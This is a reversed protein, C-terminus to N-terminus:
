IMVKWEKYLQLIIRNKKNERKVIYGAVHIEKQKLIMEKLMILEVNNLVKRM